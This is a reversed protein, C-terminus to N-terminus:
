AFREEHWHEWEITSASGAYEVLADSVGRYSGLLRYFKEGDRENIQGRPAGDLTEIIRKELHDMIEALTSRLVEQKAAAPNQSLQRLVAQVALRWEHIDNSLAEVLIQSQSHTREELLEQICRTMTRLSAVLAQIQQPSTGPLAKPDIFKGWVELKGPLASVEFTHFARRWRELRTWPQHPDRGM